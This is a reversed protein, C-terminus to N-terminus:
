RLVLPLYIEYGSVYLVSLRSTTHAHLGVITFTDPVTSMTRLGQGSTLPAPLTATWNGSSDATVVALSQLTETIADTDDLFIEVKCNPCPSGDGSTGSVTTGDITTVVAPAFSKLEDPVHPGYAIADEAFDNDGQEEPWDDARKIINSYLANGNCQWNNLLIASLSTEVLTNGVVNMDSPGGGFDLGRGCVGVVNDGSDLGIINDRITHGSGTVDMAPRQTTDPGVDLYLGAFLNELIQNDQGEVTIGSGGTWAGSVCPHKDFQAPIPVTGDARTGFLNNSIQNDNGRVAVAVGNFGAFINNHIM